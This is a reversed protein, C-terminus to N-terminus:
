KKRLLEIGEKTVVAGKTGPCLALFGEEELQGMLRRIKGETLDMGEDEAMLALKRRGVGHTEWAKKLIWTRVDKMEPYVEEVGRSLTVAHMERIGVENIIYAPLDEIQILSGEERVHVLYEVVNVLERVNGGWEYNLLFDLAEKSFFDRLPIKKHSYRSLYIELLIPIDEKRERLAPLHLTLVNLRYYLDKRFAGERVLQSLEKNTASIVRVDIPITKTGGVRRVEKEQLVRLLRVQLEMPADGIEDLFITGGHSEEFLGPKGGKRAGTFAGEEYGFLESELLTAPLAAFNVPVFPGQSRGSANHIAQAFFEKGTGSEGQVLITSDSQALKKSLRITRGMIESEGIIDRFRYKANHEQKRMKRRLEHELNQIETADKITVLCGLVKEERKVDVKTAVLKRGQLKLIQSETRDEMLDKLEPLVENINKDKTLDMTREIFSLFVDNTASITGLANLYVIGDSSNEVITQFLNKLETAENAVKNYQKSLDIINRVFQSSILNGKEGLSGTHMLIEVLTTIDILRTGIDIIEKM